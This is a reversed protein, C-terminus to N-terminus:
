TGIRNMLDWNRWPGPEPSAGLSCPHRSGEPYIEVVPYVQTGPVPLLNSDIQIRGRNDKGGSLLNIYRSSAGHGAITLLPGRRYVEIAQGRPSKMTNCIWTTAQTLMETIPTKWNTGICNAHSTLPKWGTQNFVMTTMDCFTNAAMKDLLYTGVLRAETWFVPNWSRHLCVGIFEGVRLLRSVDAQSADRFDFLRIMRWSQATRGIEYMKGSQNSDPALRDAHDRRRGWGDVTKGVYIANSDPIGRIGKFAIVYDIPKDSDKISVDLHRPLSWIDNFDCKGDKMIKWFEEPM